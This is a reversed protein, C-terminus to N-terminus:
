GLIAAVMGALGSDEGYEGDSYAEEGQEEGGEVPAGEVVDGEAPVEEAADGELPTGEVVDGEVPTGEVVDGEVPAGEVVEGEVIGPPAGEVPVGQQQGPEGFDYLVYDGPYDEEQGGAPVIPGGPPADEEAPAPEVVPMQKADTLTRGASAHLATCFFCVLLMAVAPARMRSPRVSVM